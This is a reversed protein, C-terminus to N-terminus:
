EKKELNEVKKELEYIKNLLALEREEKSLSYWHEKMNEPISM